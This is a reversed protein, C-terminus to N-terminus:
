GMIVIVENISKSKDLPIRNDDIEEGNLIIKTIGKSVGDPNKV